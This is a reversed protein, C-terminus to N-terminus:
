DFKVKESQVRRSLRVDNDTDIYVKWELRKRILENNLILSGEVLIIDAPEIKKTTESRTKSKEEYIPCNFEKKDLLLEIGNLM